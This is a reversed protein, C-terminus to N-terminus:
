TASTTKLHVSPAPPPPVQPPAQDPELPCVVGNARWARLIALIFEVTHGQPYVVPSNDAPGSEAERALEAFHWQRGSAVDRLALEQGREQAIQRWRQYLM